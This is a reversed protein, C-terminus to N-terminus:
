HPYFSVPIVVSTAVPYGNHQVPIFRPLNKVAELAAEDYRPGIGRAVKVDGVSGDTAVIFSIYARKVTKIPFDCALPYRLRQQVATLIAPMGGGGPLMPLQEVPCILRHADAPPKQVPSNQAFAVHYLLVSSAVTLHAYRKM